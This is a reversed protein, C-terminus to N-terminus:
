KQHAGKWKQYSLQNAMRKKSLVESNPLLSYTASPTLVYMLRNRFRRWNKYGNSNHKVNKIIKNRNEILANTMTKHDLESYVRLSNVIEKRWKHLTSAFSSMEVESCERFRKILADLEALAEAETLSRKANYHKACDIQKQNRISYHGDQKKQFMPVKIKNDPAINDEVIKIGDYLMALADKLNVAVELAPHYSLLLCKIDYYNLYRKMRRNYKKKRNVDLLSDDNSFLLWNFKKILYYKESKRNLSNQVKIRICDLRKHCEATVHYHDVTRIANPLFTKALSQYTDWMDSSFVKVQEREEIPISSFFASLVSSHRSPLIEVPCKEKYDLLVCVYKSQNNKFAYVEDISLFKPLKRRSVDVHADFVNAVTTASVNHRKAVESMTVCPSKLDELINMDTLTSHRSGDNSFPNNPFFSHKCHPCIYRRQRYNLILKQNIFLSHNISLNTYSKIHPIAGCLPCPPHTPKLVVSVCIKASRPDNSYSISQIIDVNLNFLDAIFFEDVEQHSFDSSASPHMSILNSM